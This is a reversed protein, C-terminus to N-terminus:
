AGVERQRREPSLVHYEYEVAEVPTANSRRLEEAQDLDIWLDPLAAGRDQGDAGIAGERVSRVRLRLSKRKREQTVDM